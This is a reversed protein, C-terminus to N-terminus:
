SLKVEAGRAGDFLRAPAASAFDDRSSAVLALELAKSSQAGMPPVTSRAILLKM